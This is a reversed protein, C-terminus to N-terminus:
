IWEFVMAVRSLVRFGACASECPHEYPFPALSMLIRRVSLHLKDADTAMTTAPLAVARNEEFLLRAVDALTERLSAELRQFDPTGGAQALLAKM